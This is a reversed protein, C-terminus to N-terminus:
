GYQAKGNLLPEQTPSKVGVLVGNKRLHDDDDDEEEDPDDSEDENSSYDVDRESEDSLSHDSSPFLDLNM